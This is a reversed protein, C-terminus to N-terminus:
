ASRKKRSSSARRGKSPTRGISQKLADILNVVDPEEDDDEPAVLDEGKLKAKILAEVRERHTDEYRDFDFDNAFLGRILTQALKVERTMGAARKLGLAVKGPPRIEADYNLMAMHLVGDLPRVLVIQDKGSFVVRGIAYREERDMAATLVGYPGQAAAIAPVLYYMRGDFYLPDIADPSVFADVTLAREKKTHLATLEESDIEIYKDKTYEYGSVIEDNPVTGHVPCVKEYHIRHHCKAHLQHFHIDSAERDLANFAEVEFSVLGFTLNGKWSARRKPTTRKSKRARKAM